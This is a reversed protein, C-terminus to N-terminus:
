LIQYESITLKIEVLKSKNLKIPYSQKKHKLKLILMKNHQSQHSMQIKYGYSQNNSKITKQIHINKNYEEHNNLIKINKAYTTFQFDSTFNLLVNQKYNKIKITIKSKISKENQTDFNNFAKTSISNENQTAFHNFSKTFIRNEIQTAFQYFASYKHPKMKRLLIILKKYNYQSQRLNHKIKNTNNFM